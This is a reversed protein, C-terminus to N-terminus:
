VFFNSDVSKVSSSYSSNKMDDCLVSFDIDHVSSILRRDLDFSKMLSSFRATGRERNAYAIFPKNFIISFVVGHFSDTVIFDADDFGKIWNAVSQYTMKKYMAFFRREKKGVVFIDKQLHESVSDVLSEYEPNKDLLYTLIKGRNNDENGKYLKRYDNPKLLFAPDLVHDAKCDLYNKCLEVGSDERVSIYDFRKLLKKIHETAVSGLDWRDVGFSAAYAFLKYNSDNDMFDFFYEFKRERTYDFRWVQDSGVVLADFDYSKITDFQKSSYIKSTLQMEEREFDRMFRAEVFPIKGLVTKVLNKVGQLFSYRNRVRQIVTPNHGKKKLYTQLAYSQLLGGYNNNFPLTLIGIKM